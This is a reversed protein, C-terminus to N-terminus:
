ILQVHSCVITTHGNVIHIDMLKMDKYLTVIVLYEVVCIM